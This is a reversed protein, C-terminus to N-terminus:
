TKQRQSQPVAGGIVLWVCRTRSGDNYHRITTSFNVDKKKLTDSHHLSQVVNVDVDRDAM